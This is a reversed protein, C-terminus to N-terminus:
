YKITLYSIVIKKTPKIKNLYVSEVSKRDAFTVCPMNLTPVFMM